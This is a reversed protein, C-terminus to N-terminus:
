PCDKAPKQSACRVFIPQVEAESLKVEPVKGEDAKTAM